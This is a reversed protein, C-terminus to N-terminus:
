YKNKTEEADMLVGLFVGGEVEILAEGDVISFSL